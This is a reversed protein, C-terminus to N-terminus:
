AIERSDVQSVEVLDQVRGCVDGFLLYDSIVDPHSETYERKDPVPRQGHVPVRFSQPSFLEIFLIRRPTCRIVDLDEGAVRLSGVAVYMKDEAVIEVGEDPKGVERRKFDVNGQRSNRRVLGGVEEQEVDIRFGREREIVNDIDGM